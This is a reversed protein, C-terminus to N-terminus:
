HSHMKIKVKKTVKKYYKNGKYTIVAKFTGKKKLNKIKFTAKGKNNTKASYTKGKVKIYVKRKKMVKKINNRLTITYKKVRVAKKFTKTKATIKPTAKKVTVNVALRSESYYGDEEHVFKFTYKKPALNAILIKVQGKSDTKSVSTRAGYYVEQNSVPKGQSDKLTVILYAKKNYVVSISSAELHTVGDTNNEFTCNKLSTNYTAPGLDMAHNNIFTCKVASGGHMAGGCSAKNNIFTCNEASSEYMAGGSPAYNSIFTSNIALGSMAGGVYGATNNRFTCNIATGNQIAPCGEIAYNNTFTCNIATGECIAAGGYGWGAKNNSFTCNIATGGYMAGGTEYANILIMNKITVDRGTINFIRGYGGADVTYGNGDVSIDNAFTIEGDFGKERTYNKGLTITSGPGATNIEEQLQTFTGEDAGLTEVDDSQELAQNEGVSISDAVENEDCLVEESVDESVIDDSVSDEVSIIDDAIADEASVTACTFFLMLILGLILFKRM